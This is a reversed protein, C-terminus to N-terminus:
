RELPVIEDVARCRKKPPKRRHRRMTGALCIRPTAKGFSLLHGKAPPEKSKYRQPAIRLFAGEGQACLVVGPAPVENLVLRRTSGACQGVPAVDPPAPHSCLITRPMGGEKNIRASQEKCSQPTLVQSPQTVSTLSLSGRFPGM